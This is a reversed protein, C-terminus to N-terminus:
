RPNPNVIEIYNRKRVDALFKEFEPEVQRDELEARLRDAVEEYQVDAPDFRDLFQFLNLGHETEVVPSIEGPVMRGFTAELEPPADGQRFVTLGSQRATPARSMRRAVSAFDGSELALERVREALGLASQRMEPGAEQPAKPLLIHLVRVREGPRARAYREEFLERVEADTVAIRSRVSGSVVRMRTIQMGLQKRYARRGLGQQAAAEYVIDVSVGEEEAIGQITQDIEEDTAAAENREALDLILTDDILGRLAEMRLEIEQGSDIEGGGAEVRRLLLGTALDLDSRLIVRNGVIAAVGDVRELQAGAPIAYLAIWLLTAARICKM